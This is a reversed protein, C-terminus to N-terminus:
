QLYSRLDIRINELTQNIADLAAVIDANGPTPPTPTPSPTPVPPATTAEWPWTPFDARHPDIWVSGPINFGKWEPGNVTGPSILVEFDNNGDSDPTKLMVSKISCGHSNDGVTKQKVGGGAIRRAALVCIKFAGDNGSLDEGHALLDNKATAVVASFDSM